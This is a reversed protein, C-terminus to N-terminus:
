SQDDQEVPPPLALRVKLQENELRLREIELAQSFLQDKFKEREALRALDLSLQNVRATLDRLQRETESLRTDQNKVKEGLTFIQSLLDSINKLM